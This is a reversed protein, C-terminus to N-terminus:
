QMGKPLENPYFDVVVGWAKRSRSQAVFSKALEWPVDASACFPGIFRAGRKPEYVKARYLKRAARGM